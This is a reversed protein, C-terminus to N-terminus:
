LRFLATSDETDALLIHVGFPKVEERLSLEAVCKDSPTQQHSQTM